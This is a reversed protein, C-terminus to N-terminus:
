RDGTKVFDNFVSNVAQRTYINVARANNTKLYSARAANHCQQKLVERDKFILVSRYSLINHRFTPIRNGM